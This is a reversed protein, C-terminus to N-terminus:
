RRALYDVFARVKPSVRRSPEFAPHLPTPAPKHDILLRQLGGATLDKVVQWSAGGVVGAGYRVAGVPTDLGNM